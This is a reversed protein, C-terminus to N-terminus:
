ASDPMQNCPLKKTVLKLYNNYIIVDSKYLRGRASQRNLSSVSIQTVTAYVGVSFNGLVRM